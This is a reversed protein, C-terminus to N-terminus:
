WFKWRPKKNKKAKEESVVTIEATKITQTLNQAEESISEAVEELKDRTQSPIKFLVEKFSRTESELHAMRNKIEVLDERDEDQVQEIRQLIKKNNKVAKGIYDLHKIVLAFDFKM